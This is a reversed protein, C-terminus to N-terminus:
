NKYRFYYEPTDETITKFQYGLGKYYDIIIPLAKATTKNVQDCHLLLFIKSESRGIIKHAEKVLTNTSTNYNLGDSLSANWDYILYNKEHLKEYLASNLYPKSGGPFRIARPKVGLVRNVEEATDEMEKMFIDHSRYIHKFKHTFTHLGISHGDNHIRKLIEERGVIKEGVVFFTAKVEKEDLIDLIRNTIINSPGDDFTLYIVKENQYENESDAYVNSKLTISSVLVLLLCCCIVKINKKVSKAGKIKYNVKM